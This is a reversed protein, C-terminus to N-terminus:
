YILIGLGLIILFVKLLLDETLPVEMPLAQNSPDRLTLREPLYRWFGHSMLETASLSEVLATWSTLLKMTSAPNVPVDARLSALEPGGEVPAAWVALEDPKLGHLDLAAATAIHCSLALAMVHSFVKM